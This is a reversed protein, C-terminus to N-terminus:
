QPLPATLGDRNREANYQKRAEKMHAEFPIGLRHCDDMVWVLSAVISPNLRPEPKM